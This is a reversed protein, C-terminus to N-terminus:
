CLIFKRLLFHKWHNLAHVVALVNKLWLQSKFTISKDLQKSYFEILEWRYQM